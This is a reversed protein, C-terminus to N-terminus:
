RVWRAHEHDLPGVELDFQASRGGHNDFSFSTAYKCWKRFADSLLDAAQDKAAKAMADGELGEEEGMDDGAGGGAGREVYDEYDAIGSDNDDDDEYDLQRTQQQRKAQYADGDDDDLEDDRGRRRAESIKTSPDDEDAENDADGKLNM